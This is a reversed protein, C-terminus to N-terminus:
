PAFSFNDNEAFRASRQLFVHKGIRGRHGQMHERLTSFHLNRGQSYM